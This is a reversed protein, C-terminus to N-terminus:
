IKKQKKVSILSLPTYLVTPSGKFTDFDWQSEQDYSKPM